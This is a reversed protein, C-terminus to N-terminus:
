QKLMDTEPLFKYPPTSLHLLSSPYLCSPASRELHYPHQSLSMLCIVSWWVTRCTSGVYLYPPKTNQDVCDLFAFKFDWSLKSEAELFLLSATQWRLLFCESLVWFPFDFQVLLLTNKLDISRRLCSRALYPFRSELSDRPCEVRKMRKMSFPKLQTLNKSVRHVELSRERPLFVPTSLWKRRPCRGLGPISGTDRPNGANAPSNKVVIAVQSGM